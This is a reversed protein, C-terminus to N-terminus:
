AYLEESQPINGPEEADVRGALYACLRRSFHDRVALHLGCGHCVFITHQIGEHLHRCHACLVRRAKSGMLQTQVRSRSFGAGRTVLAASWIFTEPGALAIQTGPSVQRLKIELDRLLSSEDPYGFATPSAPTDGVHLWTYPFAPTETLLTEVAHYGVGSTAFLHHSAEPNFTLPAYVPQSKISGM